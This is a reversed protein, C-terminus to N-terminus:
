ELPRALPLDSAAGERFEDDALKRLAMEAEAIVDLPIPRDERYGPQPARPPTPRDPTPETPPVLNVPDYRADPPPEARFGDHAPIYVDRHPGGPSRGRLDEQGRLIAQARLDVLALLKQTSSDAAGALSAALTQVLGRLFDAEAQQTVSLRGQLFAMGQSLEVQLKSTESALLGMLAKALDGSHRSVHDRLLELGREQARIPDPRAGERHSLYILLVLNCLALALTVVALATM